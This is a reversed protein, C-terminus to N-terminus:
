RIGGSANIREGTLWAADDSALFVVAPAIDEPQGLRSGIPTSAALAEAHDSGVLGIRHTGETETHGPAVMNVRINRPALEKALALTLSDIAAKTSAYLVSGPVPNKSAISSINIISGGERSFFNLSEQIVLITGLVNTNFQRHFEAETVEEVPEFQFVGANNVLVDVSGSIEKVKMFLAKVDQAVAVNGQLAIAKGGDQQIDSVVEDAAEKSSSYNVIVFAGEKALSKAIGAGIGKSAGTVLATKGTLRKM